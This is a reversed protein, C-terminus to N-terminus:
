TLGPGAFAILAVYAGHGAAFITKYDVNEDIHILLFINPWSTGGFDIALPNNKYGLLWAMFSHSFEHPYVALYHSLLIFIPTLIILKLHLSKSIATEL